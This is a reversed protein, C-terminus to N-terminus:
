KFVSEERRAMWLSYVASKHGGAEEVFRMIDAAREGGKMHVTYRVNWGSHSSAAISYRALM